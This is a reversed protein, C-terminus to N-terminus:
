STIKQDLFRSKVTHLVTTILEKESGFHLSNLIIRHKFCFKFFNAQRKRGDTFRNCMRGETFPKCMRGDRFRNCMRDDTLRNCMRGDRFRTCM